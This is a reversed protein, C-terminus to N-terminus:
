PFSCLRCLSSGCAGAIISAQHDGSTWAIRDYGNDAAWRVMRKMALEPWTKAFPASPIGAAQARYLADAEDKVQRYAAMEDAPVRTAWGDTWGPVAYKESLAKGMEEYRQEVAKVEESAPQYGQRRGAQHWDSQVEELFLTKLPQGDPGTTTRDNFRVHALINPEDYHSGTYTDNPAQTRGWVMVREYDNALADGGAARVQEITPRTNADFGPNLGLADVKAKVADFEATSALSSKSEPLTLLLERYSGDEAGPLNFKPSGYKTNQAEATDLGRYAENLRAGNETTHDREYAARAAQYETDDATIRPGGKVVEQVQVNNDRLYDSVETKTIPRGEQKAQALYDDLGSWKLEDPKVGNKPSLIAQVDAAPARTGMKQEIVRQAQSYFTPVAGQDAGSVIGLGGSGPITSSVSGIATRGPESVARRQAETIAADATPADTVNTVFRGDSTAVEWYGGRDIAQLPKQLDTGTVAPAAPASPPPLDHVVVVRAPLSQAGNQRLAELRHGGEVVYPGDHDVAVILPTIEGSQKIQAALSAARRVDDAAVFAGGDGFASLPVERIGPLITYDNAIGSISSENPVGPRVTLSDVVRGARPFQQAVEEVTPATPIGADKVAGPSEGGQVTGGGPVVAGSEGAESGVSGLRSLGRALDIGQAGIVGLNATQLGGLVTEAVRQPIPEGNSNVFRLGAGLLGSTTIIGAKVLAASEGARVAGAIENLSHVAGGPALAYVGTQAIEGAVKATPEDAGLARAAPEALAGAVGAAATVAPFAVASATGVAGWARQEPTSDPSTLAKISAVTPEAAQRVTRLVNEQVQSGPVTRAATEALASTVREGEPTGTENTNQSPPAPAIDPTPVTSGGLLASEQSAGIPFGQSVDRMAASTGPAQNGRAEYESDPTGATPPSPIDSGAAPPQLGPPQDPVPSPPSSLSDTAGAAGVPLDGAESAPAPAPAATQAQPAYQKALEDYPNQAPQSLTQLVQAKATHEALLDDFPTPQPTSPDLQTSLKALVAARAAHDDALAKWPGGDTADENDAKWQEARRQAAQDADLTTWSFGLATAM